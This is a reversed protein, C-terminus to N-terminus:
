WRIVTPSFFNIILIFLQIKFPFCVKKAEDASFKFLFGELFCGYEIPVFDSSPGPFYYHQTASTRKPTISCSGWQAWGLDSIVQITSDATRQYHTILQPDEVVPFFSNRLWDALMEGQDSSLGFTSQLLSHANIRADIDFTKGYITTQNTPLTVNFWFQLTESDQNLLSYKQNKTWLSESSEVSIGSPQGQYSVLMGNWLTSNSTTANAWTSYFDSESTVDLISRQAQKLYSEQNDVQIHHVFETTLWEMNVKFAPGTFAVTLDEETGTTALIGLFFM